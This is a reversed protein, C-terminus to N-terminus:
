VSGHSDNHYKDVEGLLRRLERDKGGQFVRGFRRKTTELMEERKQQVANQCASEWRQRRITDTMTSVEKLEKYTAGWELILMDERIAPALFLATRHRRPPREAEYEDISQIVTEPNYNWDLSIPVGRSVSPNDGVTLDFERM